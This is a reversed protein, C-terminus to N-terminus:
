RRTLDYGNRELCRSNYGNINGFRDRGVNVQCQSPLKRTDVSRRALCRNDLFTQHGSKVRVTTECAGPLAPKHHPRYSHGYDRDDYHRGKHVPPVYTYKEVHRHEGHHRHQEKYRYTSRSSNDDLAKGIIVLATAGALFKVLDDNGAKAPMASVSTIALSAALVSAIFKRSM